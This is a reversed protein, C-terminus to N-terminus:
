FPAHIWFEVLYAGSAILGLWELRRLRRWGCLALILFLVTLVALCVFAFGFWLAVSMGVTEHGPVPALQWYWVSVALGSFGFLSALWAAIRGELLCYRPFTVAGYPPLDHRAPM